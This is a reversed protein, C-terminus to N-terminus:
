IAELETAYNENWSKCSCTSPFKPTSLSLTGPTALTLSINENLHLRAKDFSRPVPSHNERLVEQQIMEVMEPKEGADKMQENMWENM